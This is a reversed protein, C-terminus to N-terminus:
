CIWLKKLFVQPFGHYMLTLAEGQWEEIRDFVDSQRSETDVPEASCFAESCESKSRGGCGNKLSSSRNSSHVNTARVCLAGPACM